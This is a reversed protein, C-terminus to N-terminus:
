YTELKQLSYHGEKEIKIRYILFNANEPNLFVTLLSLSDKEISEKQDIWVRTNIADKFFDSIRIDNKLFFDNNIKEDFIVKDNKMIKVESIWDRHHEVHTISDMKRKTIVSKKMDTYTKIRISYGNSLITDTKVEAYKEPVYETIELAGLSDKFKNVSEKLSDTKTKRGDCSFITIASILMVFILKNM